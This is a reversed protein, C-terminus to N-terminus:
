RASCAAGACSRLRDLRAALRAELRAGRRRRAAAPRPGRALNHLQYPDRALDYLEREGTDREFYLHTPTRLGAFRPLGTRRRATGEILLERAPAAWPNRLFGFLSIGDPTWPASAGAAELLTPALDVNAALQPLRLGRPVGPGRMLLPVRLAPEYPLIKGSPIRHEGNFFGNDSTFVLLTNELEGSRELAAVVREVGEDVALLSELGQRYRSRIAAIKRARLRPRSSMAPPKDRVDAEDFAPTRPLPEAAFAGQHRPAAVPSPGAPDGPERPLGNHPALYSLWLFFPEPAAARRAIVEEARETLVDTQYHAPTLGYRRLAGGENLVFRYYNNTSPDVLGQWETWGEPVETADRRGYRNLYKGVLVTAYGGRQLWTALTEAHDLREFGGWPPHIDLVGHNHAYRGTLLTARSPCCLALSVLSNEFTTGRDGILARTRSMVRMSEATQDDTQVLVINPAAAAPAAPALALAAALLILAAAPRITM